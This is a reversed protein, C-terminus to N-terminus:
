KEKTDMPVGEGVTAVSLSELGVSRLMMMADNTKAPDVGGSAWGTIIWVTGENVKEGVHDLTNVISRGFGEILIDSADSRMRKM